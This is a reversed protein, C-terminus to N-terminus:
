SAWSTASRRVNVSNYYWEAYPNNCFWNQEGEIEGLACTPPAWAPASILVMDACVMNWSRNFTSYLSYVSMPLTWKSSSNLLYMPHQFDNQVWMFNLIGTTATVPKLPPFIIRRLLAFGTRGDIIAADM